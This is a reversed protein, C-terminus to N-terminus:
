VTVCYEFLSIKYHLCKSKSLPNIQMHCLMIVFNNLPFKIITVNSGDLHDHLVGTGARDLRISPYTAPM